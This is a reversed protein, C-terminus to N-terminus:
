HNVSTAPLFPTDFHFFATFVLQLITMFIPPSMVLFSLWSPSPFPGPALFVLFLLSIDQLSLSVLYDAWTKEMYFNIRQFLFDAGELELAWAKAM